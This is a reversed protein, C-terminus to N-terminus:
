MDSPKIGSLIADPTLIPMQSPEGGMARYDWPTGM